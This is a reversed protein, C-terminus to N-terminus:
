RKSSFCGANLSACIKSMLRATATMQSMKM